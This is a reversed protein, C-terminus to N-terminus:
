CSVPIDFSRREGWGRWSSSCGQSDGTRSPGTLYFLSKSLGEFVQIQIEEVFSRRLRIKFFARKCPSRRDSGPTWSRWRGSSPRTRAWSRLFFKHSLDFHFVIDFGIFQYMFNKKRSFNAVNAWDRKWTVMRERFIKFQRVCMVLMQHSIQAQYRLMFSMRYM